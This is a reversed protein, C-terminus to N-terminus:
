TLNEAYKGQEANWRYLLPTSKIDQHRGVSQHSKALKEGTIMAKGNERSTEQIGIYDINFRRSM